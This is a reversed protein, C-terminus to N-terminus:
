YNNSLLEINKKNSFIILFFVCEGKKEASSEALKEEFNTVWRVDYVEMFTLEPTERRVYSVAVKLINMDFLMLKYCYM